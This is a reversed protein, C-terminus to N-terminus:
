LSLGTHNLFGYCLDHSAAVRNLGAEAAIRAEEITDPCLNGLETSKINGWVQEIANLEPAYGPLRETRLWHKQTDLWAKMARSRHSPLGDWIVIVPVGNFHDHLGALFEILTETNYSGARLSYSFASESRDPRYALVGSVSMRKWSFRHHLVPTVGRPAWTARVAPLLSFGSEDQFCIWAGLRRAIRKHTAM